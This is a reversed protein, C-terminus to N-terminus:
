TKGMSITKKKKSGGLFNLGLELIRRRLDAKIKIGFISMIKRESKRIAYRTLNLEQAIEKQTNGEYILKIVEKQRPKLFNEQANPKHFKYQEGRSVKEIASILEILEDKPVYGMAGRLFFDDMLVQEHYSSLIIVKQKPHKEALADMTQSGNMEPMELDLLVVDPELMTLLGLLELGNNAEGIVQINAGPELLVAKITQRHKPNDDTIIVKFPHVM